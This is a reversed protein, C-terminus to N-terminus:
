KLMDWLNFFQLISSLIAFNIVEHEQTSEAKSNQQQQMLAMLHTQLATYNNSVHSLMERLRGNEVNM